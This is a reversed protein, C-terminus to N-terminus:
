GIYKFRSKNRFVYKSKYRQPKQRVIQQEEKPININKYAILLCLQFTGKRKIYRCKREIKLFEMNNTNMMGRRIDRTTQKAQRGWKPTAELQKCPQKEQARDSM